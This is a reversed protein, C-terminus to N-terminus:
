GLGGQSMLLACLNRVIEGQADLGCAYLQPMRDLNLCYWERSATEVLSLQYFSLGLRAGAQVCREALSAPASDGVSGDGRVLTVASGAVFAEYAQGAVTEMLHLPLAGSLATLKGMGEDDHIHYPASGSLAAYTVPSGLRQRFDQAEASRTTVLTRPRAFPLDPVLASLAVSNLRTRYWLEPRLRNIVPCTQPHLWAMFLANWESCTYQGDQTQYEEAPIPLGYFRYLVGDMESFRTEQGRFRVAGAGDAPTWAFLMEPLLQDEPLFLVERGEQRLEDAVLQCCLDENRGLILITGM